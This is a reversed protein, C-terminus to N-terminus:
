RREDLRRGLAVFLYICSPGATGVARGQRADPRAAARRDPLRRLFRGHHLDAHRRDPQPRQRDGARLWLLRAGESAKLRSFITVNLLTSIGYAIIGGLWIRPTGSMITEFAALGTPLWTPRPRCRSCWCPQAGAVRDAARLRDAGAPEAIERGHLEAVASSTVVLMLFAFIGAEVALPGLAVQKNGLVGAICVMGGYFIAFAFLSMPIARAAAPQPADAAAQVETTM